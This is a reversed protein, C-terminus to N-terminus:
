GRQTEEGEGEGEGGKVTSDQGKEDPEDGESGEGRESFIRGVM